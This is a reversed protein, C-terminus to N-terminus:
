PSRTFAGGGGGGDPVFRLTAAGGAERVLVMGDGHTGLYRLRGPRAMVITGGFPRDDAGELHLAGAYVGDDRITLTAPANAPGIALRGYWAGALDRVSPVTAPAVTACGASAAALLALLLRSM